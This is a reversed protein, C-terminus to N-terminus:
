NISKEYKDKFDNNIKDVFDNHGDPSLHNKFYKVDENSFNNYDDRTLSFYSMNFNNKFISAEEPFCFYQLNKYGKFDCEFMTANVLGKFIISDHRKNHIFKYYNKLAINYNPNVFEDHMVVGQEPLHLDHKDLKRHQGSWLFILLDTSQEIHSQQELFREYTSIPGHGKQGLHMIEANHFKSLKDIYTGESDDACYSDGFFWIRDILHM